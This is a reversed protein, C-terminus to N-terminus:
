IKIRSFKNSTSILSAESMRRPIVRINCFLIYHCILQGVFNLNTFVNSFVTLIIGTYLIVLVICDKSTKLSKYIILSISIIISNFIIIGLIGLDLFPGLYATSVNLVNSELWYREESVKAWDYRDESGLFIREVASPLLGELTRTMMLNYEPSFNEITYLLNHFPTTLYIYFWNMGPMKNIIADERIGSLNSFFNSGSRIDGISGFLIMLSLFVLLISSIRKLSKEKTIWFAVILQLVGVMFVKRSLVLVGWIIMILVPLIYKVKKKNLFLFFGFLAFYLHAAILFGHVSAIGFDFHSFNYGRIKMLVPINEFFLFEIGSAVLIFIYFYLGRRKIRRSINFYIVKRQKMKNILFFSPFSSFVILLFITFVYTNGYYLRDSYRLIYLVFVITWSGALVIIPNIVKLKVM